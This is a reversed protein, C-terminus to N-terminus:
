MVEDLVQRQRKDKKAVPGVNTNRVVPESVDELGSLKAAGVQM